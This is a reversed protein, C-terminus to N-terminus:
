DHNLNNQPTSESVSVDPEEQLFGHTRRTIDNSKFESWYVEFAIGDEIGIFQHYIGPEVKFYGGPGLFTIDPKYLNDEEAWVKIMMRGSEIYFGNFKTQHKHESCHGNRKFEIRHLEFSGNSEILETTGWVKGSKSSM